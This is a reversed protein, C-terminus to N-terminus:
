YYWVKLLLMKQLMWIPKVCHLMMVARYFHPNEFLDLRYKIRLINRVMNDLQSESLEREQILTMLHKEYNDSVMEMDLGANAARKAADKSDKSFGHPILETVSFWDSIVFGDFNMESSSM